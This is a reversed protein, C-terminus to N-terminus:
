EDQEGFRNLLQTLAGRVRDYMQSADDANLQYQDALMSCMLLLVELRMAVETRFNEDTSMTQASERIRKSIQGVDDESLAVYLKTKDPARSALGRLGDLLTGFGQVGQARIFERAEDIQEQLRDARETTDINTTAM